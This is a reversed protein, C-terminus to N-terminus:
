RLLMITTVYHNFFLFRSFWYTRRRVRFEFVFFGNYREIVCERRQRLGSDHRGTTRRRTQLVGLVNRVGTRRLLAGDGAGAARRGRRGDTSM